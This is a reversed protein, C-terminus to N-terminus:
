GRAVRIVLGDTEMVDLEKKRKDEEEGKIKRM